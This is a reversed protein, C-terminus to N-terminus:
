DDEEDGDEESEAREAQEEQIVELPTMGDLKDQAENLWDTYTIFLRERVSEYDMGQWLLESREEQWIKNAEDRLTAERWGMPDHWQLGEGLEVPLWLSRTDLDSELEESWARFGMQWEREDEAPLAHFDHLRKMYFASDDLVAYFWDPVFYAHESRLFEFYRRLSDPLREETETDAMSQRIYHSFLFWRLEFENIDAATKRHVNALYDMLFEANFCDQQTTRADLGLTEESWQMFQDLQEYGIELIEQIESVSAEQGIKDWDEEYEM